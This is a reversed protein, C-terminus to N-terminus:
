HVWLYIAKSGIFGQLEYKGYKTAYDTTYSPLLSAVTRQGTLGDQPGGHYVPTVPQKEPYPRLDSYNFM